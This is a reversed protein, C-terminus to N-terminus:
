MALEHIMEGASPALIHAGVLKGKATVVVICGESAGDARARDSHRLEMRYVEVDDGHKAEAEATTLGAHALEPDTFTCWPVFDTLEGKVPYFADRVGRVAEKGASHTFLVHGAVDGPAYIAQVM